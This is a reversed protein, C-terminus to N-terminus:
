PFNLLYTKYLVHTESSILFIVNFPIMKSSLKLSTKLVKTTMYCLFTTFSINQFSVYIIQIVYFTAQENRLLSQMVQYRAFISKVLRLQFNLHQHAFM